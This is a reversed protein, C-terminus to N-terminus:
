STVPIVLRLRTGGYEQPELELVGGLDRAREKMGLVGRAGIRYNAEFIGEGDDLIELILEDDQQLLQVDVHEAQAHKAINTLGEQFIRYVSIARTSSITILQDGGHFQCSIDHRAAFVTLGREMTAVLGLHDLGSPRLEESMDRVTQIAEQTVQMLDQTIGKLKPDSVRRIIRTIDMKISALLGGLVDHLERAFSARQQERDRNTQAALEQLDTRMQRLEEERRVRETVDIGVGVIAPEGRYKMRTGHVELQVIHGKKHIAPTVYRVSAIDGSIRRRYMSLSQEHFYAPVIERLSKGEMEVKSMGVFGAWTANSYVFNENQIVYVGVISQEVIAQFSLESYDSSDHDPMPILLSQM